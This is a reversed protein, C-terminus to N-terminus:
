FHCKLDSESCPDIYKKMTQGANNYLWLLVIFQKISVQLEFYLALADSAAARVPKVKDHKVKQVAKVVTDLQSANLCPGTRVCM